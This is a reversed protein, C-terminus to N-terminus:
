TLQSRTAEALYIQRDLEQILYSNPTYSSSELLDEREKRLRQVEDNALLTANNVDRETMPSRNIFDSSGPKSVPHEAQISQIVDKKTLVYTESQLNALDRKISHLEERDGDLM